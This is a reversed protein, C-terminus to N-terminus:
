NGNLMVLLTITIITNCIILVNTPNGFIDRILEKWEM